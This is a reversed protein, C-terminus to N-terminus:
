WPRTDTTAAALGVNPAEIDWSTREAVTRDNSLSSARVAGHAIDATALPTEM